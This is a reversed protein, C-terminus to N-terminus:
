FLDLFDDIITTILLLERLVGYYMVQDVSGVVALLLNCRFFFKFSESCEEVYVKSKFAFM